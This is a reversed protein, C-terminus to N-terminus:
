KGGKDNVLNKEIWACDWPDNFANFYNKTTNKSWTAMSLDNFMESKPSNKNNANDALQRGMDVLFPKSATLLFSNWQTDSMSLYTL